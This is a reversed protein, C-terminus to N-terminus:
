QGPLWRYGSLPGRLFVGMPKKSGNLVAYGKKTDFSGYAGGIKAELPKTATRTIVNIVGGTAQNGYLVSTPSKIVEIREIDKIPIKLLNFYGGANNFEIGNVMIITGRSSPENGRSSVQADARTGYAAPAIHFGPIQHLLESIDRAEYREIEARSIVNINTSMDKLETDMKTASIVVEDLKYVDDGADTAVAAGSFVVLLIQLTLFVVCYSNRWKEQKRKLYRKM